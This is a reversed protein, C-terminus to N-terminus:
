ETVAEWTGDAQLEVLEFTAFPCTERNSALIERAAAESIPVEWLVAQGVQRVSFRYFAISQIQASTIEPTM